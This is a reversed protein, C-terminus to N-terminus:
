SPVAKQSCRRMSCPRSLDHTGPGRGNQCVSWLSISTRGAGSSLINALVRLLEDPRRDVKGLTRRGGKEELRYESALVRQRRSEVAPLPLYTGRDIWISRSGPVPSVIRLPPRPLTLQSDSAGRGRRREGWATGSLASSIRSKRREEARGGRCRQRQVSRLPYCSPWHTPRSKVTSQRRTGRRVRARRGLPISCQLLRAQRCCERHTLQSNLATERRPASKSVRASTRRTWASRHSRRWPNWTRWERPPPVPDPRPASRRLLTLSSNGSRISAVKETRGEGLARLSTNGGNRSRRLM